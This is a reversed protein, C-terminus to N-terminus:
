KIQMRLYVMKKKKKPQVMKLAKRQEFGDM